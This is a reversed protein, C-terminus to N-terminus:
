AQVLEEFGDMPSQASRRACCSLDPSACFPRCDPSGALSARASTVIAPSSAGGRRKMAPASAMAMASCFTASRLACISAYRWSDVDSSKSSDTGTPPALYIAIRLVQRPQLQRFNPPERRRMFFPSLAPNHPSACLCGRNFIARKPRRNSPPANRRATPLRAVSRV